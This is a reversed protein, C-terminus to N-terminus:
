EGGRKETSPDADQSPSETEGGNSSSTAGSPPKPQSEKASVQIGPRARLLGNVIIRAGPELGDEIVRVSGLKPGVTVNARQVTSKEDVLMVFYGALDRQVAAMAVYCGVGITIIVVLALLSGKRARLDRVLKRLLVRNVM